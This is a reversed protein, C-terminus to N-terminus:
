QIELELLSTHGNPFTLTAAIGQKPADTGIGIVGNGAAVFTGREITLTANDPVLIVAQAEVPDVQHMMGIGKTAAEMGPGCVSGGTTGWPPSYDAILCITDPEGFAIYVDTGPWSGIKRTDPADLEITLRDPARDNSQAQHAFAGFVEQPDFSTITPTGGVLVESCGALGLIAILVLVMLM